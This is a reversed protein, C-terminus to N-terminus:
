PPMPNIKWVSGQNWGVPRVGHPTGVEEGLASPYNPRACTLDAAGLSARNVGVTVDEGQKNEKFVPLGTRAEIICCFATGNVDGSASCSQNCLFAALSVRVSTM